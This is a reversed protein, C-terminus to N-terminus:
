GLGISSQERRQRQRSLPTHRDLGNGGEIGIIMVNCEVSYGAHQRLLGALYELELVLFLQVFLDDIRSQGPNILAVQKNCLGEGFVEIDLDLRFEQGALRVIGDLLINSLGLWRQQDDAFEADMGIGTEIDAPVALVQQLMHVAGYPEAHALM